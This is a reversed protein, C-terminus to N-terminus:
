DFLGTTPAEPPEEGLEERAARIAAWAIQPGYGKRALAGLVRRTLRAEEIGRGAELKNRAIETAADLEDADTIQSTADEVIQSDVGKRSLEAAVARRSLGRVGHRSATWRHAFDADDILGVQTLRDLVAERVQEPVGHSDLATALESRTNARRDLRKLCIERAEEYWQEDTM